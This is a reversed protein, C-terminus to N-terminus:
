RQSNEKPVVVIYKQAASRSGLKAPRTGERSYHFIRDRGALWLSGDSHDIDITHGGQHITKLLNGESDYKQTRPWVRWRLTERLKQGLPLPRIRREISDLVRGTASRSVGTGTVWLSGDSHDIRLCMPSWELGVSHLIEGAAAIKIIRNTSQAVDPHQREAVWISGDPAVDVSSACWKIPNIERLINLGLDCKKITNGVLWLVKRDEDLVMDFGATNVSKLIRGGEIVVTREGYITGASIVAYVTGNKAVTASTSEGDIRWLQKGTQTEYAILHKGVNECIVFFKGDRSVALSRGGGITQSINLNTVMRWPKARPSFATLRDEFPPTRFDADNDELVLVTSTQKQPFLTVECSWLLMVLGVLLIIFLTRVRKRTKSQGPDPQVNTPM